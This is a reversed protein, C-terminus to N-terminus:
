DQNPRFSVRHKSERVELGQLIRRYLDKDDSIMDLAGKKLNHKTEFFTNFSAGLDAQLKEADQVFYNPRQKSVKIVNGYPTVYEWEYGNSLFPSATARAVEKIPEIAKNCNYAVSWLFYAIDAKDGFPTDADNLTTVMQSIMEEIMNMDRNIEDMRNSVGM